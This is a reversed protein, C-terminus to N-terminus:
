GVLFGNWSGTLALRIWDVLAIQLLALGGGAVMWLWLDQWGQAQNERRFAMILLMCYVM